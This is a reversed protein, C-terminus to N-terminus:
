CDATRAPSPVGTGPAHSIRASSTNCRGAAYSSAARGSRVSSAGVRRVLATQDTPRDVWGTDLLYDVTTM